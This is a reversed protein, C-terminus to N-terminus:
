RQALTPVFLRIHGVEKKKLMLCFLSTNLYLILLKKLTLVIGFDKLMAGFACKHINVAFIKLLKVISQLLNLLRHISLVYEMDVQRKEVGFCM